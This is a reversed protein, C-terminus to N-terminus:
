SNRIVMYVMNRHAPSLNYYFLATMRRIIMNVLVVMVVVVPFYIGDLEHDQSSGVGGAPRDYSGAGSVFSM